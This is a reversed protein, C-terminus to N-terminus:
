RNNDYAVDADGRGGGRRDTQRYFNNIKATIPYRIPQNNECEAHIHSILCHM